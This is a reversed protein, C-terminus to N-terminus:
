NKKKFYSYAKKLSNKFNNTLIDPQIYEKLNVTNNINQLLYYPISLYLNEDLLFTNKFILEGCSKQGIIKVNNRGQFIGTTIEGYNCTKNSILICIKGNFKLEKGQYIGPYEKIKNNILNIWVPELLSEQKKVKAFLSINGLLESLSLIVHLYTDGTHETLDIILNKFNKEKWINLKNKVFFIIKELDRKEYIDNTLKFHNFKIYGINNKNDFKLKPLPRLEKEYKKKNQSYIITESHYKKVLKNLEQLSLNRRSDLKVQYKKIGNKIIKNIKKIYIKTKEM